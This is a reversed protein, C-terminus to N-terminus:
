TLHFVLSKSLQIIISKRALPHQDEDLPYPIPHDDDIMMGVVVDNYDVDIENMKEARHNWVLVNMM